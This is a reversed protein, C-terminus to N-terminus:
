LEGTMWAGTGCVIAQKRKNKISPLVTSARRQVIQTVHRLIHLSNTYTQTM